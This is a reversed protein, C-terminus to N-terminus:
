RPIIEHFKSRGHGAMEWEFVANLLCEATYFCVRVGEKFALSSQTMWCKQFTFWGKQCQLWFEGQIVKSLGVDCEWIKAPCSSYLPPFDTQMVLILHIIKSKRIYFESFKVLSALVFWNLRTECSLFSFDCSILQDTRHWMVFSPCM